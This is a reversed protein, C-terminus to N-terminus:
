DDTKEGGRYMPDGPVRGNADPKQKGFLREAAVTATKHMRLERIANRDGADAAKQLEALETDTM